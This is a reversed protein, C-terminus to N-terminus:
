STVAVPFSGSIDEVNDEFNEEQDSDEGVDTENLADQAAEIPCYVDEDFEIPIAKKELLRHFAALEEEPPYRKGYIHKRENFLCELDEIDCEIPPFNSKALVDMVMVTGYIATIELFDMSEHGNPSNWSSNSGQECLYQVIRDEGRFIARGIPPCNEFDLANVDAGCRLLAMVAEDHGLKIAFYLPSCGSNDRAELDAGFDLLSQVMSEIKPM